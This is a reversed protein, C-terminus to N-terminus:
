PATSGDEETKENCPFELHLLGNVELQLGEKHLWLTADSTKITGNPDIMLVPSGTLQISEEKLDILARQAFVEQSKSPNKLHIEGLLEIPGKEGVILEDATFLYEDYSGSVEKCQDSGQILSSRNAQIYLAKGKLPQIEKRIGEKQLNAVSPSPTSIHESLLIKPPQMLLLWVGFFLFLSLSFTAIM